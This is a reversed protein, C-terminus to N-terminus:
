RPPAAPRSSRCRGDIKVLCMRCQGVVSLRPHYCYHPIQVGVQIRPTSWTPAPKGGGRHPRQDNGQASRVSREDFIAGTRSRAPGSRSTGTSRPRSADQGAVAGSRDGRRGPRLALQRRHAGCISLLVQSDRETGEGHEIRKLMLEMWNTGERCPTCQGCSEHNFFKALRAVSRVMCTTDDMVIVAASGLMSGAKAVRTSTWRSTSRDATLMPASAGGPIFAKLKGGRSCAAAGTWCRASPSASRTSTPARASSTAPSPTSSPAPTGSTPASRRSGTPAACWSTRCTPVADRRQQHRDSRRLRRRRRPLAAERAAPRAQGGAIRADGDGRRLHLGGRRPPRVHRAQLGLGDRQRRPHRRRLGGQAGARPDRRGQHVRRPHLHLLHAAAVAWCCIACGEILQHPDYEM